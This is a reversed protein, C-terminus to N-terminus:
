MPLHRGGGGEEHHLHEYPYLPHLPSLTQALTPVKLLALCMLTNVPSLATSSRLSLTAMHLDEGAM